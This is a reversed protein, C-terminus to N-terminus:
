KEDLAEPEREDFAADRDAAAGHIDVVQHIREGAAARRTMARWVDAEATM